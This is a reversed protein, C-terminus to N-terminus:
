FSPLIYPIPSKPEYGVLAGPFPKPEGPKKFLSIYTGKLGKDADL